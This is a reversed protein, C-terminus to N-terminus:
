LLPQYLFTKLLPVAHDLEFKWSIMQGGIPFLASHSMLLHFNNLSTAVATSDKDWQLSQSELPHILLLILIRPQNARLYLLRTIQDTPYIYKVALYVLLCYKNKVCSHSDNISMSAAIIVATYKCGVGSRSRKRGECWSIKISWNATIGQMM